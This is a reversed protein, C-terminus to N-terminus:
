LICRFTINYTIILFQIIGEWSQMRVFLSLLFNVELKQHHTVNPLSIDTYGLCVWIIRNLKSVTYHLFIWLQTSLIIKYNYLVEELTLSQFVSVIVELQFILLVCSSREWQFKKVLIYQFQFILFLYNWLETFKLSFQVNEFFQLFLRM